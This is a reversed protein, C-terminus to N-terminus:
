SPCLTLVPIISLVRMRQVCICELKIIERPVTGLLGSFSQWKNTGYGGSLWLEHAIGASQNRKRKDGKQPLRM